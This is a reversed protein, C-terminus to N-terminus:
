LEQQKGLDFNFGLSKNYIIYFDEIYINNKDPCIVMYASVTGISAERALLYQKCTRKYLWNNYVRHYDPPGLLAEVSNYKFNGILYNSTLDKYLKARTDSIYDSNIWREKSFKEESQYISAKIDNPVDTILLVFFGFVVFILGFLLISLCVLIYKFM